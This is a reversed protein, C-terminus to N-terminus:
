AARGSPTSCRRSPSSTPSAPPPPSPPPPLSGRPPGAGGRGGEGGLAPHRAVAGDTTANGFSPCRSTPAGALRWDTVFGWFVTEEILRKMPRLNESTESSIFIM